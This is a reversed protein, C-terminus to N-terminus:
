LFFGTWDSLTKFFMVSVKPPMAEPGQGFGHFLLRLNM